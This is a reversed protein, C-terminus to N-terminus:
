VGLDNRKERDYKELFVQYEKLMEPHSTSLWMMFRLYASITDLTLEWRLVYNNVEKIIQKRDRAQLKREKDKIKQLSEEKSVKRKDESLGPAVTEILEPISKTSIKENKKKVM